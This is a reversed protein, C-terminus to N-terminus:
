QFVLPFCWSISWMPSDIYHRRRIDDLAIQYQSPAREISELTSRVIALFESGLGPRRDNYWGHAEDIDKRAEERLLLPLM